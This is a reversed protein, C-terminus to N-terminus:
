KRSLFLCFKQRGRLTMTVARIAALFRGQGAGLSTISLEGLKVLDTWNRHLQLRVRTCQWIGGGYLLNLIRSFDLKSGFLLFALFAFVQM